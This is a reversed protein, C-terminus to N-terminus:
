RKKLYGEMAKINYGGAQFPFEREVTAQADVEYYRSALLTFKYANAGGGYVLIVKRSADIVYLQHRMNENGVVAMVSGSEAYAPPAQTFTSVVYGLAAVLAVVAVGRWFLSDQM